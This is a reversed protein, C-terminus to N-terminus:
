RLAQSAASAGGEGEEGEPCLGFSGLHLGDQACRVQLSPSIRCSHCLLLTETGRSTTGLLSSGQVSGQWGAM